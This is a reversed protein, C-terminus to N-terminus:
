KILNKKELFYYFLSVFLVSEKYMDDTPLKNRCFEYFEEMVDKEKAANPQGSQLRRFIQDSLKEKEQNFVEYVKARLQADDVLVTQNQLRQSEAIQSDNIQKIADMYNELHEKMERSKQLIINNSEIISEHPNISSITKLFASQNGTNNMQGRGQSEPTVVRGSEDYRGEVYNSKKGVPRGNSALNSNKGEIQVLEEDTVVGGQGVVEGHGIATNNRSSSSQKQQGDAFTVQSNRIGSNTLNKSSSRINKDSAGFIGAPQSSVASQSKGKNTISFPSERSEFASAASGRQLEGNELLTLFFMNKGDTPVSDNSNSGFTHRVAFASIKQPVVSNKKIETVKQEKIIGEANEILDDFYHEGLVENITPRYTKKAIQKGSSDVVSVILSRKGNADVQDEEVQITLNEGAPSVLIQESTNKLTEEVQNELDEFYNEGILGMVTPAHTKRAISVGKLDKAVLTLQRTGDSKIEDKEVEVYYSNGLQSSKIFTRKSVKGPNVSSVKTINCTQRGNSNDLVELVIPAGFGENLEGPPVVFSNAAVTQGRENVTLLSKKVTGDTQPEVVVETIYSEGAMEPAVQNSFIEKGSEDTTTVVIAPKGLQGITHIVLQQYYEAGILVPKLSHAVITSSKVNMVRVTSKRDGDQGYVAHISKTAPNPQSAPIETSSLTEGFENRVLLTRSGDPHGADILVSHHFNGLNDDSVQQNDVVTGDARTTIVSVSHRGNIDILDKVVQYYYDNGILTPSIKQEVVVQNASPKYAITSRDIKLQSPDIGVVTKSKLTFINSNKFLPESSTAITSKAKRDLLKPSLSARAEVVQSAKQIIEIAQSQDKPRGNVDVEVFSVKADLTSKKLVSGGRENASPSKADRTSTQTGSVQSQRNAISAMAEEVTRTPRSKSSPSPSRSVRVGSKFGSQRIENSEIVGRQSSSQTTKKIKALVLDLETQYAEKQEKQEETDEIVIPQGAESPRSGKSPGNITSKKTVSGSPLVTSFHKQLEPPLSGIREDRTEPQALYNSLRASNEFKKKKLFIEQLEAITEPDTELERAVYEIEEDKMRRMNRAYWLELYEALRDKYQDVVFITVERKKGVDKQAYQKRRIHKIKRQEELFRKEDFRDDFYYEDYYLLPELELFGEPLYEIGEIKYISAINFPDDNPVAGHVVTKKRSDKLVTQADSQIDGVPATSKIIKYYKGQLTDSMEKVDSPDTYVEKNKVLFYPKDTEKLSKIYAEEREKKKRSREQASIEPSWRKYQKPSTSGFRMPNVLDRTQKEDVTRYFAKQYANSESM